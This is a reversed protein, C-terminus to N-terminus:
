LLGGAQVLRSDGRVCESNSSDNVFDDTVLEQGARQELWLDGLQAWLKPQEKYFCSASTLHATLGEAFLQRPPNLYLRFIELQM